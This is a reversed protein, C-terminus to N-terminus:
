FDEDLPDFSDSGGAGAGFPGGLVLGDPSVETAGSPAKLVDSGAEGFKMYLPVKAGRSDDALTAVDLSVRTLAGDKIAFDVAVKKNPADKLDKATPLEAGEPLEDALPRLRDFVDTLLARFSAKATVHDTGNKTGKDTFTVNRTLAGRVAKMIKKQTASDLSDSSAKKDSKGSEGNKGSGAAGSEKLGETLDDTRFKVWKGEVVNRLAEGEEGKPLEDATPAPFGALKSFADLNMRYYTFDGVLRYEALMGDPGTVKLGAGVIDKEGSDALPKKSRVSFSIRSQTFAKAMQPPLPEEDSQALKTLAAPTADLGLELSLSTREGLKDAARDIKQAATLNEVTGCAATTALLLVTCGATTLTTTRIVNIDPERTGGRGPHLRPVWTVRSGSVHNRPSSNADPTRDSVHANDNSPTM